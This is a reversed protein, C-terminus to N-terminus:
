LQNITELAHVDITSMLLLGFAREGYFQTFFSKEDTAMKFNQLYPVNQENFFPKIMHIQLTYKITLSAEIDDPAILVDAPFCLSTIYKVAKDSHKVFQKPTDIVYKWSM